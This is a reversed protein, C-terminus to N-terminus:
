KAANPAVGAVRTLAEAAARQIAQQNATPVGPASMIQQIVLELLAAWPKGPNLSVVLAAAGRAITELLAAREHDKPTVIRHAYWSGVLTALVGILPGLWSLNM